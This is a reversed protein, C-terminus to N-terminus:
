RTNLVSGNINLCNWSNQEIQDVLQQENPTLIRVHKSQKAKDASLPHLGVKETPNRSFVWWFVRISTSIRCIVSRPWKLFFLFRGCFRNLFKFPDLSEDMDYCNLVISFFLIRKYYIQSSTNLKVILDFKMSHSWHFSKIYWGKM